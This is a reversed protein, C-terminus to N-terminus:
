KYTTNIELRRVHLRTIEAAYGIQPPEEYGLRSEELNGQRQSPDQVSVGSMNLGAEPITKTQTALRM